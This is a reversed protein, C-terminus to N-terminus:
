VGDPFHDTIEDSPCVLIKIVKINEEYQICWWVQPDPKEPLLSPDITDFFLYHSDPCLWASSGGVYLSRICNDSSGIWLNIPAIYPEDMTYHGNSLKGRVEYYTFSTEDEEWELCDSLYELRARM